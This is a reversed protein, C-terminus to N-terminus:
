EKGNFWVDIKPASGDTTTVEVRAFDWASVDMIESVGDASLTIAGDPHDDFDRDNMSVRLSLVANSWAAEDVAQAQFSLTTLRAIRQTETVNEGTADLEHPRLKPTKLNMTSPRRRVPIEHDGGRRGSGDGLKESRRGRILRWARLWPSLEEEPEGSTPERSTRGTANSPCPEAHPFAPILLQLQEDEVGDIETTVWEFAKDPQAGVCEYDDPPVAAQSKVNTLILPADGLGNLKVDYRLGSAPGPSNYVALIVGFRDSM